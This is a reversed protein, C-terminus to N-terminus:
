VRELVYVCRIVLEVHYIDKGLRTPEHSIVLDRDPSQPPTAITRVAMERQKQREKAKRWGKRRMKQGRKDLDGIKKKKGALVDKEWRKRESKLYRERREPDANRRARYERQREAATKAM